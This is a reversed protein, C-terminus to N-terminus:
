MDFYITATRWLLCPCNNGKKEVVMQTNTHTYIYITIISFALWLSKHISYVRNQTIKRTSYVPVNKPYSSFYYYFWSNMIIINYGFLFRYLILIYVSNAASNGRNPCSSFWVFYNAGYIDIKLPLKIVNTFCETQIYCLFTSDIRNTHLNNKRM